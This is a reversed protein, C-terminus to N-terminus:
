DGDPETSADSFFELSLAEAPAYPCDAPFHGYPLNTDRVALRVGSRWAKAFAADLYPQLSPQETLLGAIQDRQEDITAQWSNSRRENQFQWKLLHAILVALRSELERREARGLSAIEEALNEIDLRDWQRAKLAAAQEVTWAHFDGEYSRARRHQSQWGTNM